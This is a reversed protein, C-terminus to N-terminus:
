GRSLTSCALLIRDCAKEIVDLSAAFSLRFAPSIGYASGQVSAVLHDNLLFMVFDDDTDIRKGGSTTMGMLADCSVYAFFAGQPSPCRLGHKGDLRSVIADRREQYQRNWDAVFARPGQLAAVAAAQTVAAPNGSTQSQLKAM